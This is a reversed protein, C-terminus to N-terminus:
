TPRPSAIATAHKLRIPIGNVTPNITVTSTTAPTWWSDATSTWGYTYGDVDGSALEGLRSEAAGSSPVTFETAPLGIIEDRRRAVIGCFAANCDVIRRKGDILVIGVATSEFLAKYRQQEMENTMGGSVTM